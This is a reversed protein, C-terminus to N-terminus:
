HSIVMSDVLWGLCKMRKLLDIWGCIMKRLFEELSWMMWFLAIFRIKLTFGEIFILLVNRLPDRTRLCRGMWWLSILLILGDTLTPWVISSNQIGIVKKLAFFEQNKGGVFKKWYRREKFNFLYNISHFSLLFISHFILVNIKNSIIQFLYFM